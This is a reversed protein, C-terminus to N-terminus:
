GAKILSGKKVHFFKESKRQRLILPMQMKDIVSIIKRM